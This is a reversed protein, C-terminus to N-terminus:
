EDVQKYLMLREIGLPPSILTIKQGDLSIAIQYVAGDFTFEWYQNNIKTLTVQVGNLTVQGKDDVVITYKEDESVYTGRGKSEPISEGRDQSPDSSEDKTYTSDLSQGNAVGGLKITKESRSYTVTYEANYMESHSEYTFTFGDGTRIFSTMYVVNGNALVLNRNDQPFSFRGNGWSGFVEDTFTIPHDSRFFQGLPIDVSQPTPRYTGNLTYCYGANMKINNVTIRYIEPGEGINFVYEDGGGDGRGDYRVNTAEQGNYTISNAGIILTKTTFGIVKGTSWNGQLRSDFIGINEHCYICKGDDGISHGHAPTPLGKFDFTQDIDEVYISFDATGDLTCTANDHEKTYEESNLDPLYIEIMQMCIDCTNQLIGGYNFTPETQVRWSTSFEHEHEQAIQEFTIVITTYKTVAFAYKNNQLEVVSGNVTVEDVTYGQNPIVELTVNTGSLVMGDPTLTYEGNEDCKVDISYLKQSGQEKFTINIETDETVSFTYANDTLEKEEGNVVFANVEYGANPKVTFTVETNEDVKGEQTIEYEGNEGCDVSVNYKKEQPETAKFTITIAIVKDVTFTYTNNEIEVVEGNVTVEAEYNEEPKLTLTVETDKEVEGSHTIEYDGNEKNCDVSVTYKTTEVPPEESNTKKFSITITADETATFTYTNDDNLVVKAGNYTVENIEYGQDPMVTLTEDINEPVPSPESLTYTGGDGCLVTVIYDKGNDDDPVCAAVGLACVIVMLITMIFIATKKM